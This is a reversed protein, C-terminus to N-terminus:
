PLLASGIGGLALPTVQRGTRGLTRLPLQKAAEAYVRGPRFLGSSVVGAAPLAGLIGLIQRRNM